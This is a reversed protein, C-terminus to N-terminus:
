ESREGSSQILDLSKQIKTELPLHGDLWHIRFGNREMRRFWTMQRKAFQHIATNLKEVMEDYSIKGGLYWALYKYELGYYILKEEPIGKNILNETEEIMGSKLRLHLRETIRKRRSERDYKIGILLYNLEPYDDSLGPNESYYHEIELARILRKRNETDTTNHLNKYEELKEVLEDDSFSNLYKRYEPDPPVRILKYGRLVAEIYLGTGGCLVAIRNRQRIDKFVALFDKQYEFVNYEYGPEVIDILHHKVSVNDVIYDSLDKGTGINMHKYVQRSDASIIEGNIRRALAAAFATKGGATHGLVCVLNLINQRSM